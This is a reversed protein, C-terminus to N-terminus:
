NRHQHVLRDDKWVEFGAGLHPMVNLQHAAAIAAEDNNREVHHTAYINEGHDVLHVRYRAMIMGRQPGIYALAERPREADPHENGVFRGYTLLLIPSGSWEDGSHVISSNGWNDPEVERVALRNLSDCAYSPPNGM